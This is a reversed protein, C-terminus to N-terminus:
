TKVHINIRQIWDYKKNDIRTGQTGNIFCMIFIKIEMASKVGFYSFCRVRM